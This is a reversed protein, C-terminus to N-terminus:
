LCLKEELKDFGTHAVIYRNNIEDEIIDGISIKDVDDPFEGQKSKHMVQNLNCALIYAVRKYQRKAMAQQVHSKNFWMSSREYFEKNSFDEHSKDLQYVIFRYM